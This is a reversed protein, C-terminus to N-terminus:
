IDDECGDFADQNLSTILRRWARLGNRRFRRAMANAEKTTLILPVIPLKNSLKGVMKETVEEDGVQTWDEGEVTTEMMTEIEEMNDKGKMHEAGSPEQVQDPFRGM